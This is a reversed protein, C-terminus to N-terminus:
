IPSEGIHISFGGSTNIRGIRLCNVFRVPCERITRCNFGAIGGNSVTVEFELEKEDRHLGVFDVDAQSAVDVTIDCLNQYDGLENGFSAWYFFEGQLIGYLCPIM